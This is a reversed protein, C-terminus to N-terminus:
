PQMTLIEYVKLPLQGGLSDSVNRFDPSADLQNALLSGSIAITYKAGSGRYADLQNTLADGHWPQGLSWAVYLGM